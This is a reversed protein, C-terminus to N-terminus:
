GNPGPYYNGVFEVDEGYYIQTIYSLGQAVNGNVISPGKFNFMMFYQYCSNINGQAANKIANMNSANTPNDFYSTRSAELSRNGYRNGPLGIKSAGTVNYDAWGFDVYDIASKGLEDKSSATLSNGYEYMTLLKDPMVEKMARMFWFISQQGPIVPVSPLVSYNAYEEDIDFGDLGLKDAWNKCDKAFALAENYNQFNYYGVGQNNPLIDAIVKIGRDKLPQIFRKPDRVLPQLKDNFSLYRVKKGADYNMNAAFIVVYDFVPKRSKKLLFQGMNRIDWNNTEVYGVMKMPETRNPCNFTGPPMPKKSTASLAVYDADKIIRIIHIVSNGNYNYKLPLLYYGQVLKDVDKIVVSVDASKSGKIVVAPAISFNADPLTKYEASQMYTNYSKVLADWGTKDPSLTDNQTAAIDTSLTFVTTGNGEIITESQTPNAKDVLQLAGGNGGIANELDQLRVQKNCAAIVIAALVLCSIIIKKM